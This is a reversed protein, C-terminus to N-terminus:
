VPTIYYKLMSNCGQIKEQLENISRCTLSCAPLTTYQLCLTFIQLNCVFVLTFFQIDSVIHLFTHIGSLTCFNTAIDSVIHLFKYSYWHCHTFFKYITPLTYFNCVIDSLTYFNTYKMFHTFIQIDRVIHLFKYSYGQCHTFIAFLVYMFITNQLCHKYYTTTLLCSPPPAWDNYSVFRNLQQWTSMLPTTGLRQLECVKCQYAKFRSFLKSYQCQRKFM